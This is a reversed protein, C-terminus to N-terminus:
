LKVEEIQTIFVHSVLCVTHLRSFYTLPRIVSEGNENTNMKDKRLPFDKVFLIM